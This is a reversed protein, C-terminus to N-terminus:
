ILPGFLLFPIDWTEKVYKNKKKKNHKVCAYFAKNIWGNSLILVVNTFHCFFFYVLFSWVANNSKSVTLPCSVFCRKKAKCTTIDSKKKRSILKVKVLTTMTLALRCYWCEARDVPVWLFKLGQRSTSAAMNVERNKLVVIFPWKQLM